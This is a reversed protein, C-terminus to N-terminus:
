VEYQCIAHEALACTAAGLLLALALLIFRNETTRKMQGEESSLLPSVSSLLICLIYALVLEVECLDRSQSVPRPLVQTLSSITHPRFALRLSPGAGGSKM